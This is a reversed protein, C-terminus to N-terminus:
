ADGLNIQTDLDEPKRLDFIQSPEIEPSVSLWFTARQLPGDIRIDENLQYSKVDGFDDSNKSQAWIVFDKVSEPKQVKAASSWVGPLFTESAEGQTKIEGLFETILKEKKSGLESYKVKESFIDKLETKGLHNQIKNKLIERSKSEIFESQIYNQFVKRPGSSDNSVDTLAEKYLDKKIYSIEKNEKFFEDSFKLLNEFHELLWGTKVISKLINSIENYNISGEAIRFALQKDDDLDLFDQQELLAKPNGFPKQIFHNLLSSWDDVQNKLSTIRSIENALLKADKYLEVQESYENSILKYKKFLQNKQYLWILFFLIVFHYFYVYVASDGISSYIGISPFNLVKLEALYDYYKIGSSFILFLLAVDFRFSTKCKGIFENLLQESKTNNLEFNMKEFVENFKDVTGNLIKLISSKVITMFSNENADDILYDPNLVINNELEIDNESDEKYHHGDIEHIITEKLTTIFVPVKAIRKFSAESTIARSVKVITDSNDKEFNYSFRDLINKIEQKDKDIELEIFTLKKRFISKSIFKLLSNKVEVKGQYIKQKIIEPFKKNFNLSINNVHIDPDLSKTFENSPEPYNGEDKRLNDNILDLINNTVIIRGYGRVLKIKEKGEIDRESEDFPTNDMGKWLATCISMYFSAHSAFNKGIHVGQNVDEPSPRDEPVVLINANAQKKLNKNLRSRNDLWETDPIILNLFILRNILNPPTNEKLISFVKDSDLQDNENLNADPFQLNVVRLTTLKKNALLEFLEFTEPNENGNFFDAKIRLVEHNRLLRTDSADVIIYDKLLGNKSWKGLQFFSESFFESSKQGKLFVTLDKQIM